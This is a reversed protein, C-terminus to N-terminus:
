FQVACVAAGIPVTFSSSKGNVKSTVLRPVAKFGSQGGTAPDFTYSVDHVTRSAESGFSVWIKEKTDRRHLTYGGIAEPLTVKLDANKTGVPVNRWLFLFREGSRKRAFLFRADDGEVKVDYDQPKYGVQGPEAVLANFWAVEEGAGKLTGDYRALGFNDEKRDLEPNPHQDLAEYSYIRKVRESAFYELIMRVAYQRAGEEDIPDHGEQRKWNNVANHPGCETMMIPKEPWCVSKSKIDSALSGSPMGKGYYTHIAGFDVWQGVDGLGRNNSIISPSLVPVKLGQAQVAKYLAEQLRRADALQHDQPENAGEFAEIGGGCWEQYTKLMSVDTAPHVDFPLTALMNFRYGRAVLDRVRKYFFSDRSAGKYAPLGDRLHRVGLRALVPVLKKDFDGYANFFGEKNTDDYHIHINLGQFDVLADAAVTQM